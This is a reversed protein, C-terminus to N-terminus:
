SASPKLKEPPLADPPLPPPASPPPPTPFRAAFGLLIGFCGLATFFWAHAGPAGLAGSAHSAVFGVIVMSLAGLVRAVIPPVQIPQVGFLSLMMGVSILLEAVAPSVHWNGIQTVGAAGGVLVAVVSLIIKFVRM